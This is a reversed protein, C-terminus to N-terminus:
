APPPRTFGASAGNSAKQQGSQGGRTIKTIVAWITETLEKGM